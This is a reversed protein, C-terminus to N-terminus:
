KLLLTLARCTSCLASLIIIMYVISFVLFEKFLVCCGRYFWKEAFKKKGGQEKFSLKKMSDAANSQAGSVSSSASKVVRISFLRERLVFWGLPV